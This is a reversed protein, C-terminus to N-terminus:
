GITYNREMLIQFSVKESESIRGVKGQWRIMTSSGQMTGLSHFQGVGTNPVGSLEIRKFSVPVVSTKNNNLVFFPLM